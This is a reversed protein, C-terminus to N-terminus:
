PKRAASVEVVRFTMEPSTLIYGDWYVRSEPHSLAADRSPTLHVRFRFTGEKELERTRYAFPNMEATGTTGQPIFLPGGDLVVGFDLMEYEVDFALDVPLKETLEWRNSGLIELYGGSTRPVRRPARTRKSVSPTVVTTTGSTPAEPASVFRLAHRVQGDLEPVSRAELGYGQGPLVINFEQEPIQVTQSASASKGARVTYETSVGLRHTGPGYDGPCLRSVYVTPYAVAYSRGVPVGDVYIQSKSIFRLTEPIHISGPWASTVRLLAKTGLPYTNRGEITARGFATLFNKQQEVTLVGANWAYLLLECWRDRNQFAPHACRTLAEEFSKTPIQSWESAPLAVSLGKRRAVWRELRAFDWPKLEVKRDFRKEYWRAWWAASLYTSSLTRDSPDPRYGSLWFLLRAIDERLPDDPEQLAIILEAVARADESTALARLLLPRIPDSPDRIAKYRAILTSSCSADAFDGLVRAATLRVTASTDRLEKLAVGIVEPVAALALEQLGALRESSTTAQTRALSQLVSARTGPRFNLWASIAVPEPKKRDRIAEVQQTVERYVQKALLLCEPSHSWHTSPTIFARLARQQLIPSTMKDIQRLRALDGQWLRLADLLEPLTANKPPVPMKSTSKKSGSRAARLSPNSGPISATLPREVLQPGNTWPNRSYWFVQNNRVWLCGNAARARPITELIWWQKEYRRLFLIAQRAAEEQPGLPPSPLYLGRRLRGFNAVTLTRVKSKQGIVEEARVTDGGVATALVIMDSQRTLDFPSTAPLYPGVVKSAPWIDSAFGLAMVLTVTIPLFERRKRPAACLPTAGHRTRQELPDFLCSQTRPVCTFKPQSM